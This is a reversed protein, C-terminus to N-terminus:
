VFITIIIISYYIQLDWKLWMIRFSKPPASTHYPINHYLEIQYLITITHYQTTNHPVLLSGFLIRYFSGHFENLCILHLLNRQSSLLKNQMTDLNIMFILFLELNHAVTYESRSWVLYTADYKQEPIQLSSSATLLVANSYQFLFQGSLVNGIWEPINCLGPFFKRHM